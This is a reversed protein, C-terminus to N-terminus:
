QTKEDLTKMEDDIEGSPTASPDLASLDDEGNAGGIGAGPNSVDVGDYNNGHGNNNLTKCQVLAVIDQLDFSSESEDSSSLEFFYAMDKPSIEITKEDESLISTTFSQLSAGSSGLQGPVTEKNTLNVLNDTPEITWAVSNWSGSASQGRAAIDIQTGPAVMEHFVVQSPDADASKGYYVLRWPSGPGGARVWMAAPLDAGTEGDSHSVGLVRVEVQVEQTTVFGGATGVLALDEFTTPYEIAWSLNPKVGTQVHTPNVALKGVPIYPDGHVNADPAEQAGVVLSSSILAMSALLTQKIKM